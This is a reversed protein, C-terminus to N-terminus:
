AAADRHQKVAEACRGCIEPHDSDKGVEELVKWCRECKKGNAREFGVAIGPVDDLHHTEPHGTRKEFADFRVSSTICIEPFDVSMLESRDWTEDTFVVPAAELSAGIKKEARALELTSTVARRAERLRQWKAALADNRWSQPVTPFVQLHV